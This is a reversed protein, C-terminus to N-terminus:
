RSIRRAAPMSVICLKRARAKRRINRVRTCCIFWARLQLGAAALPDGVRAHARGLPRQGRGPRTADDPDRQRHLRALSLAILFAGITSVMNWFNWGLDDARLHLHAAAHRRARPLAHPFFTLNFGSCCSGSTCSASGSTSCRASSRRGGTTSAALLPRLDRRRLARLPLPRRRLLHRDAAPRGAAVAHMVGSLGGITFM